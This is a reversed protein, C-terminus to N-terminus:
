VENKKKEIFGDVLSEIVIDIKLFTLEMIKKYILM